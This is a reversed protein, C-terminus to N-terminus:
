IEEKEEKQETVPEGDNSAILLGLAALFAGYTPFILRAPNGPFYINEAGFELMEYYELVDIHSGIWVIHKLNERQAIMKSFILINVSVMIMMSRCVDNKNVQAIEEPTKHQLKGFASAIMNPPMSVGAKNKYEGGYIDGVSIDIGSNDGHVAADKLQTTSTFYDQYRALGWAFSLGIPTGSIRTYSDKSDVRIFSAGSRMNVLMYPYLDDKLSFFKQRIKKSQDIKGASNIRTHHASDHMTYFCDNHIKNIYDISRVVFKTYDHCKVIQSNFANALSALFDDHYGGTSLLPPINPAQMRDKLQIM